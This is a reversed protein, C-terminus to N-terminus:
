IVMSKAWLFSEDSEVLGLEQWIGAYYIGEQPDKAMNRRKALIHETDYVKNKIWTAKSGNEITLVRKKDYKLIGAGPLKSNFSLRKSATFIVNSKVKRREICAHPHWFLKEQEDPDDIIEGIQLYGWIVQLDCDKYFDGTKRVYKFINNEKIVQHFNGFFLFLDGEKVGINRLYTASSGIQGFAPKWDDIKNLRRCQELDPDVHCCCVGKYNLDKLIQSYPIGEYYLEDYTDKDDSPIPFSVMTGDAFIPSAVKGNASDFGKRSLIIKM